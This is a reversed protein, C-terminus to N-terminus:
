ALCADTGKDKDDKGKKETALVVGCFLGVVIDVKQIKNGRKRVPLLVQSLDKTM